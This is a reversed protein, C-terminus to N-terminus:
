YYFFNVKVIFSVFILVDSEHSSKTLDRNVMDVEDATIKYFFIKIDTQNSKYKELLSVRLVTVDGLSEFGFADLTCPELTAAITEFSAAEFPKTKIVIETRENIDNNDDILRQIMDTLSLKWTALLRDISLLLTTNYVNLFSPEEFQAFNLSYSDFYEDNLNATSCSLGGLSVRWDDCGNTPKLNYFSSSKCPTTQTFSDVKISTDSTSTKDEFTMPTLFPTLPLSSPKTPKNPTTLTHKEIEAVIETVKLHSKNLEKPGIVPVVVEMEVPVPKIEDNAYIMSQIPGSKPYTSWNIEPRPSGESVGSVNLMMVAPTGYHSNNSANLTNYQHKPTKPAKVEPTSDNAPSLPRKLSKDAYKVQVEKKNQRHPSKSADLVDGASNKTSDVLDRITFQEASNFSQPLCKEFLESINSKTGQLFFSRDLPEPSVDMINSNSSELVQSPHLSPVSDHIPTSNHSGNKKNLFVAKNQCKEVLEDQNLNLNVNCKVQPVDTTEDLSILDENDKIKFSLDKFKPLMDKVSTLSFNQFDNKMIVNSPRQSNSKSNLNEFFQILNKNIRGISVRNKIKTEISVDAPAPNVDQNIQKEEVVDFRNRNQIKPFFTKRSQIKMPKVDPTKPEQDAEQQIKDLDSQNLYHMKIKKFENVLNDISKQQKKYRYMKSDYEEDNYALLLDRSANLSKSIKAHDEESMLLDLSNSNHQSLLSEMSKDFEEIKVDANFYSFIDHLSKSIALLDVNNEQQSSMELEKPSSFDAMSQMSSAISPSNFSIHRKANMDEEDIEMYSVGSSLNEYIDADVQKYKRPRRRKPRMKKTSNHNHSKELASVFIDFDMASFSSTDVKYCQRSTDLDYMSNDLMMDGAKPPLVM